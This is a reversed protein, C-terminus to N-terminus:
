AEPLVGTKVDIEKQVEKIFSTRNEQGTDDLKTTQEHQNMGLTSVSAMSEARMKEPDIAKECTQKEKQSEQFQRLQERFDKGFNCM